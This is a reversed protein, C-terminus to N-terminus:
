DLGELADNLQKNSDAVFQKSDKYQGYHKRNFQYKIDVDYEKETPVQGTLVKKLNDLMTLPNVGTSPPSVKEAM